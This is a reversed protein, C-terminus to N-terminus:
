ETIRLDLEDRLDRGQADRARVVVTARGAGSPTLTVSAADAVHRGTPLVWVWSDVGSHSLTFTVRQGVAARDPGEITIRATSTAAGAEGLGRAAWGGGIGLAVALALAAVRRARGTRAPARGGPLSADSSSAAESAPGEVSLAPPAPTLADRMQALWTDIDSQRDEPDTAQGRDLVSTVEAPLDAGRALDRVLASLSWLDARTDIVAPGGEMEPPRYGATGGAVTLGSNLALDKCMGLDAVVLREDSELLRPGPTSGPAGVETAGGSPVPVTGEAVPSDGVAREPDSAILVNAPSLDRHVLRAAHVARLAAALQEAVALLDAKEATWGARRLREVRGALTGRDAYELVLYPQQRDSEGIDHATVVHTSHVKRLARGEAIFRERVEPNLSHNEALLKVVVTADLREDVARYVTAFSGVGIVEHLRYRGVSGGVSGRATM